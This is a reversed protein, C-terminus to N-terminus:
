AELGGAPLGGPAPQVPQAAQAAARVRHAYKLWKRKKWRQLMALGRVWEDLTFAIWVGILGYGFYTGLLWGGLAM